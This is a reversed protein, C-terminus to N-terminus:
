ILREDDILMSGSLSTRMRRRHLLKSQAAEPLDTIRLVDKDILIEILDELVRAMDQDSRALNSTSAIQQLFDQLEDAERLIAEPHQPDDQLSLSVIEGKNGRRIYVHSADSQNTTM